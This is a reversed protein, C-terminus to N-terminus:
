GRHESSPMSETGLREKFVPVAYSQNFGFTCCEKCKSTAWWRNVWLIPNNLFLAPAIEKGGQFLCVLLARSLLYYHGTVDVHMASFYSFPFGQAEYFDRPRSELAFCCYCCCYYYGAKVIVNGSTERPGPVNWQDAWCDWSTCVTTVMKYILFNLNLFELNFLNNVPKLYTNKKLYAIKLGWCQGRQGWQRGQQGKRAWVLKKSKQCCLVPLRRWTRGEGVERAPINPKFM